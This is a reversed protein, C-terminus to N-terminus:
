GWTSSLRRIDKNQQSGTGCSQKSITRRSAKVRKMCGGWIRNRGRMGKSRQRETGSSQKSMTRQLVKVRGICIEWTTSGGADGQEAAKRFWKVAEVDNEVVGQGTSYMVGLNFQAWADGRAATTRWEKATAADVQQASAMSGSVFLLLATAIMISGLMRRATGDLLVEKIM